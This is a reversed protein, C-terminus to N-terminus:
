KLSQEIKVKLADKSMAGIITGVIKGKNFILLTPISRIGYKGSTEQNEDVNLKCFKVSKRENSLEELRPAIMRCPGCWEAWFDVIAPKLSKLVETEFNADNVETPMRM